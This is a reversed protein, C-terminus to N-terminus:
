LADRSSRTSDGVLAIRTGWRVSISNILLLSAVWWLLFYRYRIYPVLAILLRPSYPAVALLAILAAVVALLLYGVPRTIYRIEVGCNRCCLHEPTYRFWSAGPKRHYRGVLSSRSWRWLSVTHKCAPCRFGAVYGRVGFFLATTLLLVVVDSRKM